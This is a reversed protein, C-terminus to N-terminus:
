GGRLQQGDAFRLAVFFDVRDLMGGVGAHTQRDQIQIFRQCFLSAAMFGSVSLRRCMVRRANSPRVAVPMPVAASACRSPPSMSRAAAFTGPSPASGNPVIGCKAGFALRTM